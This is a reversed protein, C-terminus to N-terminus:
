ILATQLTRRLDYNSGLENLFNAPYSGCTRALMLAVNSTARRAVTRVPM